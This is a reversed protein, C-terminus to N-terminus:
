AEQKPAADVGWLGAPLGDADMPPVGYSYSQALLANADFELGAADAPPRAALFRAKAAVAVLNSQQTPLKVITCPGIHACMAAIYEGAAARDASGPPGNHLNAVAVGGPALAAGVAALFAPERLHSPIGGVENYADLLVADLGRESAGKAKKKGKKAKAGDAVAQVGALADTHEVTLGGGVPLGMAAAAEMVTRDVEWVVVAAKSHRALFYPLAGSGLGVCGVRRLPAPAFALCAAAMTKIYDYGLVAHMPTGNDYGLCGPSGTYLLGQEVEGFRMCLWQGYRTVTVPGFGAESAKRFVETGKRSSSLAYGAETRLSLTAPDAWHPATEPVAEVVARLAKQLVPLRSKKSPKQAKGLAFELFAQVPEEFTKEWGDTICQLHRASHLLAKAVCRSHPALMLMGMAAAAPAVVGGRLATLGEEESACSLLCVKGAYVGREVLEVM